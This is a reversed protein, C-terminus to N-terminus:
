LHYKVQSSPETLLLNLRNDTLIIIIVSNKISNIQAAANDIASTKKFNFKRGYDVNHGESIDKM